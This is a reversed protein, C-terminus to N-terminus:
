LEAPYGAVLWANFGGEMSYVKKFGADILMQAGIPSFGGLVCYIIIKDNLHSQGESEIWDTLVDWHPTGSVIVPVNIAGSIHGQDYALPFPPGTAMRIDIVLLEPHDEIFIMSYTKKLSIDKYFPRALVGGISTALMAAAMLVVAIGLVKKNM